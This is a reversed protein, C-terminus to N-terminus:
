GGSPAKAAHPLAYEAPKVGRTFTGFGFMTPTFTGVLDAKPKAAIQGELGVCWYALNVFLRRLDRSPLDISAGITSCAIRQVSGKKPGSDLTRLRIWAIPMRPANRADTVAKAAPEMSELISGELIVTADSPLAGIGYVDTKGWVDDVGNLIPLSRVAVPPIGRTSETGHKGHHSVWTEGLVQKGFGGPWVKSDWSWSAYPSTSDAEYAFAHTATRIGLIPKGREVYDVVHKMDADPLRRFRTFLVLLDATDLAALGPISDRKDPDITGTAPDVSFLVTCHFGHHTSLIRALQPLAEESRYEEDGAVLVIRKGAGPGTGGAYVLPTDATQPPAPQEGSNALAGAALLVVAVSRALITTSLNTLSSM